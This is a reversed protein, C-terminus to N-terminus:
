VAKTTQQHLIARHPTAGNKPFFAPSLSIGMFSRRVHLFAEANVRASANSVNLEAVVALATSGSFCGIKAFMTFPNSQPVLLVFWHLTGAPWLSIISYTYPNTNAGGDAFWVVLTVIAM